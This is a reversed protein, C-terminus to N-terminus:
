NFENNRLVLRIVVISFQNKLNLKLIPFGRHRITKMESTGFKWIIKDTYPLHSLVISVKYRLFDYDDDCRM